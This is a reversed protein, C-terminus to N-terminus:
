NRVKDAAKKPTVENYKQEIENPINVKELTNKISYKKVTSLKNISIVPMIDRNVVQLNIYGSRQKVRMSFDNGNIGKAIRNM